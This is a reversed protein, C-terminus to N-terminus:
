RKLLDDLKLGGIGIGKLKGELSDKLSGINPLQLNAKGMLKDLGPLSVLDMLAPVNPLSVLSVLDPARLVNPIDTGFLPSLQDSEGKTFSFGWINDTTQYDKEKSYVAAYVRPAHTPDYKFSVNVPVMQDPPVTGVLVESLKFSKLDVMPDRPDASYVCVRVESATGEGLNYVQL